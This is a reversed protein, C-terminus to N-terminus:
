INKLQFGSVHGCYTMWGTRHVDLSMLPVVESFHMIVMEGRPPSRERRASCNDGYGSCRLM